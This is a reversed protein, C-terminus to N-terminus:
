KSELKNGRKIYTKGSESKVEAGEPLSNIYSELRSNRETSMRDVRSGIGFKQGGAESDYALRNAQSTNAPTWFKVSAQGTKNGDQDTQMAAVDSANELVDYDEKDQTFDFWANSKFIGYQENFLEPNDKVVLNGVVEMYPVGDPGVMYNGTEYAPIAKGGFGKFVKWEQNGDKGVTRVRLPSASNLVKNGSQDKVLPSLASAAFPSHRVEGRPAQLVDITYQSYSGNKGSGGGSAWEPFAGANIDKKTYNKGRTAIWDIINNGFFSREQDNLKNKWISYYKYSVKPDNLIGMATQRARDMGVDAVTAGLGVSSGYEKSTLRREQTQLKSYIESLYKEDDFVEPPTFTFPMKGKTKAVEEGFQNGHKLYNDWQQNLAAGEPSNAIEPNKVRWQDWEAKSKDSQMGRILEPNDKLERIMLNYQQRKTVDKQWDPNNRIFKGIEYIKNKAFDKIIPNDHSNVANQFQMDDAFMKAKAEAENEAQKKLMYAYRQDAIEQNWDARVALGRRVGFELAM